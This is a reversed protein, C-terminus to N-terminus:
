VSKRSSWYGLILRICPLNQEAFTCCGKAPLPHIEPPIKKLQGTRKPRPQIIKFCRKFNFVRRRFFSFATKLNFM